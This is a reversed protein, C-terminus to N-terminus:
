LLKKKKRTILIKWYRYVYLKQFRKLRHIYKYDCLIKAFIQKRQVSQIDRQKKETVFVFNVSVKQFATLTLNHMVKLQEHKEVSNQSNRLVWCKWCNRSLHERCWFNTRVFYTKQQHEKNNKRYVLFPSPCIFLM